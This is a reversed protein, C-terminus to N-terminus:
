DCADPSTRASTSSTPAPSVREVSCPRLEAMARVPEDASAVLLRHDTATVLAPSWGSDDFGPLEWGDAACRLDHCEGMLLDAHRIAGTGTHWTEDTAIM